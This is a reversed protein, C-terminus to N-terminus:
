QRSAFRCKLNHPRRIQNTTYEIKPNTEGEMPLIEYACLIAAAFLLGNLEAIHRGPCIRRGFGFAMSEVNPLEKARPNYQSLFREPKFEDADEGWLRKDRLMYGVNTIVMTGKPIHYGKWFDDETNVHPVGTPIPPCHRLSEDWTAKLYELSPIDNATPLHGPSVVTDLEEHIRKQVEPHTLLNAFLALLASGTTDVGGMYMLATSDKLYQGTLEPENLYKSIVSFDASGKDVDAKVLDYAWNRLKSIMAGNEKAFSPYKLGPFWSPLFRSIPFINVVWLQVLSWTIMDVCKVNLDVLEPGHERFVKDGYALKIIVAGTAEQIIPEIDGNFGSLRHVLNDAEQEILTNYQAVVHPGIVKRFAKRQEYFAHSPQIQIISWGFGIYENVMRNNNRGSWIQARKVFLEEADEFSNLVLVNTGPLYMHIIDGAVFQESNPEPQLVGLSDIEGYEEKWRTFVGLWDDLPFNRANGLLFSPTPGPLESLPKGNKPSKRLFFFALTAAALAGVALGSNTSALHQQWHEAM